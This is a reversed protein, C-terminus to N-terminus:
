VGELAVITRLLVVDIPGLSLNSVDNLDSILM